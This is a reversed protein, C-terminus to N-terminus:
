PHISLQGCFIFRIASFYNTNHTLSVVSRQTEIIPLRVAVLECFLELIEQAAMMNEERVIHEVQLWLGVTPLWDAM